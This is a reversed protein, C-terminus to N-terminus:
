TTVTSNPSSRVIPTTRRGDRRASDARTASRSAFSSPTSLTCHRGHPRTQCRRVRVLKVLQPHCKPAPLDLQEARGVEGLFHTVRVLLIRAALGREPASPHLTVFPDQTLIGADFDLCEAPPRAHM